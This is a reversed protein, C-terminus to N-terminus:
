DILQKFEDVNLLGDQDADAQAFTDKTVANDVAKLEEFAVAGDGNSDVMDFTVVGALAPAAAFLIAATTVAIKNTKM